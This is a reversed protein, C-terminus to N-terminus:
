YREGVIQRRRIDETKHYDGRANYLEMGKKLWQGVEEISLQPKSSAWFGEEHPIISSSAHTKEKKWEIIHNDTANRFKITVEQLDLRNEVQMNWSEGNTDTAYVGGWQRNKSQAGGLLLLMHKGFLEFDPQSIQEKNVIADSEDELSLRLEPHIDPLPRIRDPMLISPRYNEASVAMLSNYIPYM